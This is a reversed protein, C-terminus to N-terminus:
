LRRCEQGTAGRAVFNGCFLAEHTIIPSSVHRGQHHFQERGILFLGVNSRYYPMIGQRCYACSWDSREMEFKSWDSLVLDAGCKQETLFVLM